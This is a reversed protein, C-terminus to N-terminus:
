HNAIDRVRTEFFNAPVCAGAKAGKNIKNDSKTNSENKSFEEKRKTKKHINNVARYFM